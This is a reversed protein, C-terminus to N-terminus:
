SYWRSASIIFSMDWYLVAAVYRNSVKRKKCKSDINAQAKDLRERIRCAIEGESLLISQM